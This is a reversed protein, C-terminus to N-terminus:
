GNGDGTSLAGQWGMVTRFTRTSEAIVERCRGCTVVVHYTGNSFSGGITLRRHGFLRCLLETWWLPAM